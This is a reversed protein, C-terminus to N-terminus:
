SRTKSREQWTGPLAPPAPRDRTMALSITCAWPPVTPTFLWSLSLLPPAVKQKVSGAAGAAGAAGALHCGTGISGLVGAVEPALVWARSSRSQRSWGTRRAPARTRATRRFSRLLISGHVPFVQQAGDDGDTQQHVEEVGHEFRLPESTRPASRSGCGPLDM